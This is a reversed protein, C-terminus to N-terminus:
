HKHISSGQQTGMKLLAAKMKSESDILFNAGTVVKEGEAIGRLVSFYGDAEQGLEVARPEFMGDGLDVFAIKREGTDIIADEPVALAEGLPVHIKVDLFMQPKLLGGPNEVEARVRLSRTEADLVPDMATITGKFVKGPYARSTVEMIQGPKVMGMEYEYIRAYVWARGTTGLLLNLPKDSSANLEAIQNDSLGLLRLKLESAKLLGRSRDKTEAWPSEKLEVQAKLAQEYEAIAAYLEPDYAIEGV